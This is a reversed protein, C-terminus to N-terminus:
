SKESEQTPAFIVLRWEEGWHILGEGECLKCVSHKHDRGLALRTGRDHSGRGECEPCEHEGTAFQAILKYGAPVKIDGGVTVTLATVFSDCEGKPFGAWEPCYNREVWRMGEWAKPQETQSGWTGLLVM